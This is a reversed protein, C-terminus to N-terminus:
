PNIAKRCKANFRLSAPALALLIGVLIPHRQRQQRFDKSSTWDPKRRESCPVLSAVPQLPM